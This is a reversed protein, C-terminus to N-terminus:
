RATQQASQVVRVAVSLALRLEPIAWIGGPAPRSTASGTRSRTATSEWRRRPRARGRRPRPGRPPDGATRAREGPARRAAARAARDGADSRRAPQGVGRAASVRAAPRRPRRAAAGALREAAELTARANPRPPRAGARSTSRSALRRRDPRPVRRRPEAIRLGLPDDPELAAIARLELSESTGRLRSGAPPSGSGSSRASRRARRPRGPDPEPQRAVLVVWPPGDRRCRTAAARGRRPRPPGAVRRAARASLLPRSANRPSRRWTARRGSASSCSGARPRRSAPPAPCRCASAAPRRAPRPLRGRRGGRRPRRGPRPRRDHGVRRGELAVARRLFGGIAPSLSEVGRGAMALQALDGELVSSRASWSAAGTSSSASSGGSSRRRTAPRPRPDRPARRGRGGRRARRARRAAPRRASPAPRPPRPSSSCGRRAAGPSRRSSTALDAPAPAVVALSSAPVIVLDGAELVDLAPVRARLVRVWGLSPADAATPSRRASRPRARCSRGRAPRPPRGDRGTLRRDPHRRTASGPPRRRARVRPREPLRPRGPM